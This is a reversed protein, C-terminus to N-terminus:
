NRRRQNRSVARGNEAGEAEALAAQLGGMTTEDDSDDSSKGESKKLATYYPALSKAAETMETVSTSDLGAKEALKKAFLEIAKLTTSM